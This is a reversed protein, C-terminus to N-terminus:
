LSIPIYGELSRALSAIWSMKDVTQSTCTPTYTPDYTNYIKKEALTLKTGYRVFKGRREEFPGLLFDM